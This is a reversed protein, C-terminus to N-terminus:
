MALVAEGAAAFWQKRARLLEAHATRYSFNFLADISQWISINILINEDAYANIL